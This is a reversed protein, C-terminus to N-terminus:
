DLEEFKEVQEEWNSELYKDQLGTDDVQEEEQKQTETNNEM